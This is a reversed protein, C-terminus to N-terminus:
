SALGEGGGAGGGQPEVLDDVEQAAVFAADFPEDDEGGQQEDGGQQERVRDDRLVSSAMGGAGWVVVPASDGEGATPVDIDCLGEVTRTAAAAAARAGNLARAAAAGLAGRRLVGARWALVRGLGEEAASEDEEAARGGHRQRLAEVCARTTQALLLARLALPACGAAEAVSACHLADSAAVHEWIWRAAADGLARLRLHAPSSAILLLAAAVCGHEDGEGSELVLEGDGCWRLLAALAAPRRSWGVRADLTVVEPQGTSGVEEPQGTLRARWQPGLASRLLWRHAAFHVGAGTAAALSSTGDACRLLVDGRCLLALEDREAVKSAVAAAVAETAAQERALRELAADKGLKFILRKKRRKEVASVRVRRKSPTGSRSGAPTSSSSGAQGAVGLRRSILSLGVVRARKVEMLRLAEEAVADLHSLRDDVSEQASDEDDEDEGERLTRRWIGVPMEFFGGDEVGADFVAMEEKEKEEETAFDGGGGEEDGPNPDETFDSMSSASSFESAVSSSASSVSGPSGSGGRIAAAVSRQAIVLVRKRDRAVRASAEEDDSHLTPLNWATAVRGRADIAPAVDALVGLLEPLAIGSCIYRWADECAAVIAARDAADEEVFPPADLVLHSRVESLDGAAALQKRLLPWRVAIWARTTRWSLDLAPVQVTLDLDADADADRTAGAAGPAERTHALPPLSPWCQSTNTCALTSSTISVCGVCVQALRAALPAALPTATDVCILQLKDNVGFIRGRVVKLNTGGDMSSRQLVLRAFRHPPTPLLVPFDIDQLKGGSPAAVVGWRFLLGAGSLAFTCSDGCVVSTIRHGALEECLRPAEETVTGLSHSGWWYVAGGSTLAATHAVGLSVSVTTHGSDLSNVITLWEDDACRSGGGWTLLAGSSTCAASRKPGAYISTIAGRYRGRRRQATLRAHLSRPSPQAARAELGLQGFRNAGCVLVNPGDSYRANSVLLVLHDGGAAVQLVTSSLPLLRPILPSARRADAGVRYLGGRRSLLLHAAGGRQTPDPQIDALAGCQRVDVSSLAGNSLNLTHVNM